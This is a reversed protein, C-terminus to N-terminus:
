PIRTQSLAVAPEKQPIYEFSSIKELQRQTQIKEINEISQLSTVQIELKKNDRKMTEAKKSLNSVQFGSTANINVQVIYSLGM